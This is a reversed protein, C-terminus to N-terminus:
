EPTPGPAGPSETGSNSGPAGTKKREEVDEVAYGDAENIAGIIAYWLDVDKEALEVWQPFALKPDTIRYEMQTCWYCETDDPRVERGDPLKCAQAKFLKKRAQTQTHIPAQVSYATAPILSIAFERGDKAKVTVAQPDADGYPLSAVFEATLRIPEPM